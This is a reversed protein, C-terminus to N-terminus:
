GAAAPSHKALVSIRRQEADRLAEYYLAVTHDLVRSDVFLETVWRRAALGMSNRLGRDSLLRVASTAVAEPNGTPVLLGTWGPVVADRAGTALTTIVPIGTAAAELAVNPFGERWTPLVMIDMSRYYPATDAVFGTRVIRPHREIRARQEPTLADESLDYWGVLLLWADPLDALIHDFAEILVPVGKDRTLRGVFGVVPAGHPIGLSISLADVGPSFRVM